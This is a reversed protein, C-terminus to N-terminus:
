FYDQLWDTIQMSFCSTQYRELLRLRDQGFGDDQVRHLLCLIFLRWSVRPFFKRISSNTKCSAVPNGGRNNEKGGLQSGIVFEGANRLYIIERINRRLWTRGM